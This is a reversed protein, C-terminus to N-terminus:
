PAEHAMEMNPYVVKLGDFTLDNLSRKGGSAVVVRSNINLWEDKQIRYIPLEKKGKRMYERMEKMDHLVDLLTKPMPYDELRLSTVLNREATPRM